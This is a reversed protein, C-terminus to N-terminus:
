GWWHTENSVPVEFPFGHPTVMIPELRHFLQFALSPPKTPIRAHFPVSVSWISTTPSLTRKALAGYVLGSPQSITVNGLRSLISAKLADSRGLEIKFIPSIRM